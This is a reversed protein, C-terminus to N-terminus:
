LDFQSSGIGGVPHKCGTEGPAYTIVNGAPLGPGANVTCNSRSYLHLTRTATNTIVRISQFPTTITNPVCAGTGDQVFATDEVFNGECGTGAFFQAFVVGVAQREELAAAQTGTFALALALLSATFQM